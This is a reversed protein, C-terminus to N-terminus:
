RIQKYETHRKTNTNRKTNTKRKTYKHRKTNQKGVTNQTYTQKESAPKYTERRKTNKIDNQKRSTTKYM